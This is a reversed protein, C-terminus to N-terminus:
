LLRRCGDPAIEILNGDDDISVTTPGARRAAPGFRQKAAREAISADVMAHATTREEPTLTSFQADGAAAALVRRNAVSWSREVQMGIRAWYNIQETVTRNETPAVSAATAAVDAAVRTPTSAGKAM